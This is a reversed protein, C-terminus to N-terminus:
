CTCMGAGTQEGDRGTGEGDLDKLCMFIDGVLSVFDLCPDSIKAGFEVFGQFRPGRQRVTSEM